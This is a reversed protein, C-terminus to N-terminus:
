NDQIITETPSVLRYRIGRWSITRGFASTSIFLFLLISWLWSLFIDAAAASKLRPMDEKLLIRAMRQRLIARAVQSALCFVPVAAFLPLYGYGTAAAYFAMAISGWLSLVSGLASALGFWWSVPTYIRTILLQRRTFEFLRRWTTSEYSTVLCAPVFLVKMGAKKVARSLSLDDSVATQWLGEIDLRRFEAARVAMSGGWALNWRVNGLLQTVKGNIASLALTALNSQTPVFWRYGTTVGHKPLRLPWVLNCLWDRRVYIDSDAFAFIEANPGAMKCCYLLNHLKESCSTSRGAVLVQVDKAKSTSSLRSKLKQLRDYAPDSRDAVVFYLTYNDYDQKFFSTINQEFQLDLGKCPVILAASPYYAPPKRRLKSLVYCYNRAAHFVFLLQGIVALTAIAYYWHM